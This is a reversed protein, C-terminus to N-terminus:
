PAVTIFIRPKPILRSVHSAPRLKIKKWANRIYGNLNRFCKWIGTQPQARKSIGWDAERRDRPWMLWDDAPIRRLLPIRPRQPTQSETREGTALQENHKHRMCWANNSYFVSRMGSREQMRLGPKIKKEDEKYWIYNGQTNSNYAKDKRRRVNATKWISVGPSKNKMQKRAACKQYTAQWQKSNSTLMFRLENQNWITVYKWIIFDTNTFTLLQTQM